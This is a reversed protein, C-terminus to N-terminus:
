GADSPDTRLEAELGAEILLRRARPAQAAEVMIRRPLMGIAGELASMHRDAIFYGVREATLIAEVLSILVLDNTRIIENL